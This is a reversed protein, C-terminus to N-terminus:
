PQTDQRFGHDVLVKMMDPKPHNPPKILKGYENVYSGPGFKDLNNDDVADLVPKDPIGLSVLTGTNVVSLDASEKAIHALDLIDSEISFSWEDNNPANLYKNVCVGLAEILEMAEEFILRARLIRLEESIDSTPFEPTPQNALETFRKVKDYHETTYSTPSLVTIADGSKSM